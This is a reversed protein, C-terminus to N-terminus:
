KLGPEYLSGNNIQLLTCKASGPDWYFAVYSNASISQAAAILSPDSSSCSAYASGTYASCSMSPAYNPWAYTTCSIFSNIDASNRTSGLSGWAWGVSIGVPYSQKSGAFASTAGFLASCLVLASFLTKRM